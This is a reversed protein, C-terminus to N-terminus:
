TGNKVAKLIKKIFFLVIKEDNPYQHYKEGIEALLVQELEKGRKGKLIVKMGDLELTKLYGINPCDIASKITHVMESYIKETQTADAKDALRIGLYYNEKSLIEVVTILSTYPFAYAYIICDLLPAYGGGDKDIGLQRFIAEVKGMAGIEKDTRKRM